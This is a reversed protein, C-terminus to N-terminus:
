SAGKLWCGFPQRMIAAGYLEDVAVKWTLFNIDWFTSTRPEEQMVLAVAEKHGVFNDGQGAAAKHLNTTKMVDCGYLNGFVGTDVARDGGKYLSNSYRDLALKDSYEAPSMVMFRDTQPANADDLYQVCRRLNDDTFNVGLAGIAQTFSAVLTAVYTDVSLALAYGCKEKYNAQLDVQSQIKVLDEVAFAAYVWQNITIPAVLEAITEFSIATDETKARSGLNGISAVNVKYGVRADAEFQRNVRKAFVLNAETAKLVGQSWIVPSFVDQSLTNTYFATTGTAM